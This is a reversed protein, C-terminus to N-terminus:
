CPKLVKNEAQFIIVKDKQVCVNLNHKQAINNIIQRLERNTSAITIKYGLSNDGATSPIISFIEPVWGSQKIIETLCDVAEKREM